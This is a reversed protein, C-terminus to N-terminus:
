AEPTPGHASGGPVLLAASGGPVAIAASGRPGPGGIVPEASAAAFHAAIAAPSLVSGYIAVEDIAGAFQRSGDFRRGLELPDPTSITPTGAAELVTRDLGDVYILWVDAASKTGVVHHWDTDDIFVSSHVAQSGLLNYWEIYHAGGPAYLQLNPGNTGKQMLEMTATSDGVAKKIWCEWSLPGDGQDLAAADPITVYQGPGDLLVATNADSELAGPVGLVPGGIYAGPNAGFTDAAVGGAAEGLRWYAILSPEALIAASYVSV